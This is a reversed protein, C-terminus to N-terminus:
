LSSSHIHACNLDFLINVADSDDIWIEANKINDHFGIKPCAIVTVKDPIFFRNQDIGDM